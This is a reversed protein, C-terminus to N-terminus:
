SIRYLFIRARRVSAITNSAESFFVLDFVNVGSINELIDFSSYGVYDSTDKAEKQTESLVTSTNLLLQTNVSRNTRAGRLEIYSQVIYTGLPLSSTTLKVKTQPTQQNTSSQTDDKAFEVLSGFVPPTGGGGLNNLVETLSDGTKDSQNVINDTTLEARDLAFFTLQL